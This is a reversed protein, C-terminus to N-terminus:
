ELVAINDKLTYDIDTIFKIAELIQLISENHYEATLKIDYIKPNKVIFRTGHWRELKRFVEAMPTGDFVIINNTWAIDNSVSKDEIKKISKIDQKVFSDGEELTAIVKESKIIDIRGEVLTTKSVPENKYSYVNFKTGLVKIEYGNATSVLMPQELSSKVDFYGEGEIYVKRVNGTFKHPFIIKSDSNLKVTSSDPLVIYSKAGKPVYLEHMYGLKVAQSLTIENKEVAYIYQLKVSIDAIILGILVIAAFSLAYKWVNHKRKVSKIKELVVAKEVAQARNEKTTCGVLKPMIWLDYLQGIYKENERSESLWKLIAEKEQQSATGNFYKILIEDQM